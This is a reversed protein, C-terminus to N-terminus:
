PYPTRPPEQPPPLRRELRELRDVYPALREATVPKKRMLERLDERTTRVGRLAENLKTEVDQLQKELGELRAALQADRDNLQQRDNQREQTAAALSSGNRSERLVAVTGLLASLASLGVVVGLLHRNKLM